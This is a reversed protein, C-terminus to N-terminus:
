AKAGYENSFRIRLRPGGASLRVVQAVTQNTFTPSVRRPDAGPAGVAPPAPSAGWTGIWHTAAQAPAALLALAGVLVSLRM